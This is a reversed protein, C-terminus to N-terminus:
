MYIIDGLEGKLTGIRKRLAFISVDNSLQAM